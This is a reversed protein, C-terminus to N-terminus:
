QVTAIREGLNKPAETATYHVWIKIALDEPLDETQLPVRFESQGQPLLSVASFFGSERVQDPQEAALLQFNFNAFERRIKQQNSVVGVLETAQDGSVLKLEKFLFGADTQSEGLAVASTTLPCPAPMERLVELFDEVKDNGMFSLRKCFRLSLFQQKGDSDSLMNYWVGYNDPDIRRVRINIAGVYGRYTDFVGSRFIDLGGPLPPVAAQRWGPNREPSSGGSGLQAMRNMYDSSPGQPTPRAQIPEDALPDDEQSDGSWWATAFLVSFFILIVVFTIAQSKSGTQNM